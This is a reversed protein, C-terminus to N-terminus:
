QALAERLETFRPHSRLASFSQFRILSGALLEHAKASRLAYTMAEDSRGAAAASMALAVNLVDELESRALLERHYADARHRNGHVSEVHACASISLQDRGSLSLTRRAYGLATDADGMEALVLMATLNALTSQEDIAVARMAMARGEDVHGSMALTQAALATVISSQPDDQVARRVEAAAREDEGRGFLLGYEAYMARAESQKPDIELAREWLRIAEDTDHELSYAIVAATGMADALHPDLELARAVEAKARPIFDNPSRSGYIALLRLTEALAAHARAHQPDLGIAREFCKMAYPLAIRRGLSDRGKMYLEHAEVQIPSAPAREAAERHDLALQLKAAIARAIEDQVAFVDVLERDYRESWLHYGDSVAVLQTTIRLRSGAKRVSGELVTAVNLKEGIVRLDERKGKFSFASTRAAVYLGEIHTLVNTIEEAIGDGFYDNEKDSSLNEFPLVAVSQAPAVPKPQEPADTARLAALMEGATHFRDIPTRALAKQLARAVHRPISDRLAMVDAPTQVFRKAIIAQVNPGTFPPEGVLMEYLVCGLSYIDSRGDVAEGAAQEPSMYAPTGVSVGAETVPAARGKRGTPGPSTKRPEPRQSGGAALAKGIGFDAVLAHGEHLLINEPKIDRHIIGHRHAYDLADAVEAAISIAEPVPLAGEDIRERVSRGEVYPM